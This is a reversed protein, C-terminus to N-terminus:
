AGKGMGKKIEEFEERTNVNSLPREETLELLQVHSNILFKRPCTVGQSLMALLRPYAKPEYITVLPEPFEKSAAKIATAFHGASRHSLLNKLTEEDMFPMDCAIVLWAANPDFLFASCIAGFPGLGLLRDALVPFGYLEKATTDKKSIYTELGLSALMKALHQEHPEDFYVLQSKDTGMRMSAGGALVLAKVPPQKEQLAQTLQAILPEIEELHYVPVPAPYEDILEQIFPFIAQSQDILLIADIQTLQDKRKLLSSEKAPDIIVIQRAAPYHNGNVLAVDMPHLLSKQDYSNLTNEGFYKIRKEAKAITFDATKDQHDADVWAMQFTDQLQAIIQEALPEIQGCTTGYIAWEHRAHLGLNAKVIKPHKHHKGKTIM